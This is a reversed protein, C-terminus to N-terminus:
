PHPHKEHIAEEPPIAIQVDEGATSSQFAELSDQPGTVRNLPQGSPSRRLDGSSSHESSGDPNDTSSSPLESSIMLSYRRVRQGSKVSRWFIEVKADEFRFWVGSGYYLRGLWRMPSQDSVIEGTTVKIVEIGLKDLQIVLDHKWSEFAVLLPRITWYTFCANPVVLLLFLSVLPYVVQFWVAGMVGTVGGVVGATVLTVSLLSWTLIMVTRRTKVHQSFIYNLKRM